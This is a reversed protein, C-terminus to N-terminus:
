KLFLETKLEIWMLKLKKYDIEKESTALKKLDNIAVNAYSETLKKLGDKLLVVNKIQDNKM